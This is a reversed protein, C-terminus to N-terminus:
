ATNAEQEGTVEREAGCREDHRLRQGHPFPRAPLRFGPGTPHAAGRILPFCCRSSRRSERTCLAGRSRFRAESPVSTPIRGECPLATGLQHDCRESAVGPASVSTSLEDCSRRHARACKQDRLVPNTPGRRRACWRHRGDGGDSRTEAARKERPLPGLFAERSAAAHQETAAVSPYPRQCVSGDLLKWRRWVVPSLLQNGENGRGRLPARRM